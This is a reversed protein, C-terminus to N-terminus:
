RVIKEPFFNEYIVIGGADPAPPPTVSPASPHCKLGLFTGIFTTLPLTHKNVQLRDYVATFIYFLISLCGCHWMWQFTQNSKASDLVFCM